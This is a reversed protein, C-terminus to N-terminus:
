GGQSRGFRSFEGRSSTISRVATSFPFICRVLVHSWKFSNIACEVNLVVFFIRRHCQRWRTISVRLFPLSMVSRLEWGGGAVTVGNFQFSEMRGVLFLVDLVNYDFNFRLPLLKNSCARAVDMLM